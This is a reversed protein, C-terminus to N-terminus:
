LAEGGGPGGTADRAFMGAHGFARYAYVGWLGLVAFAQAITSGAASTDDDSIARGLTEDIVQAVLVVGSFAIALVFLVDWAAEVGRDLRAQGALWARLWVHAGVAIAGAVFMALGAAVNDEQRTDVGDQLGGFGDLDSETDFDGTDFGFTAVGYTYDGDIEALIATLLQALGLTLLLAGLGILIVAYASIGTNIDVTQGRHQRVYVFAVVLIFLAPIIFVLGVILAFAFGLGFVSDMLPLM